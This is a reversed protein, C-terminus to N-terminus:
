EFGFRVREAETFEPPDRQITNLVLNLLPEIDYWVKATNDASTTVIRSEDPSFNVSLVSGAHGSLAYIERGNQLNWVRATNDSSATVLRNSDHSFIARNVTGAHGSLALLERGSQADWIKATGDASTTAIRRGDPSYLADTVAEEHGALTLLRTGRPVDWVQATKDESVMVIRSSEPNFAAALFTEGGGSLNLLEEGSQADWLQTTGDDRISVIWRQDASFAAYRFTDFSMIDMLDLNDPIVDNRARIADWVNAHLPNVAVVTNQNTTRVEGESSAFGEPSVGKTMFPTKGDALRDGTQADWITGGIGGDTTVIHNGDPTFAATTTATTGGLFILLDGVSQVDWLK